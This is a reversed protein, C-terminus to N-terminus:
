GPLSTFGIDRLTIESLGQLDRETTRDVRSGDKIRRIPRPRPFTGFIPNIMDLINFRM